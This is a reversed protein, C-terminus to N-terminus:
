ARERGIQPRARHTGSRYAHVGPHILSISTTRARLLARRV